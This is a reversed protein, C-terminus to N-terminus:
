RNQRKTTLEISTGVNPETRAIHRPILYQPGGGDGEVVALWAYRGGDIWQAVDFWESAVDIISQREENRFEIPRINLLDACEEIVCIPGGLLDTFRLFNANEAEPNWEDNMLNMIHDIASKPLCDRLEALSDVIQM